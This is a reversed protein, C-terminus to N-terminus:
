KLNHLDVMYMFFYKFHNENMGLLNIAYLIVEDCNREPHRLLSPMLMQWWLVGGGESSFYYYFVNLEILLPHIWLSMVNNFTLKVKGKVNVMTVM